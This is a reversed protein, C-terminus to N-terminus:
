NMFWDTCKSDISSSRFNVHIQGHMTTIHSSSFWSSAVCHKISSTLNCIVLEIFCQTADLQNEEVWVLHDTKCIRGVLHVIRSLIYIIYIYYINIYIYYILSHISDDRQIKEFTRVHVSSHWFYIKSHMNVSVKQGWFSNTCRHLKIQFYVGNGETSQRCVFGFYPTAVFEKWKRIILHLQLTTACFM